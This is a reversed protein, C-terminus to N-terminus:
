RHDKGTNVFQICQGQNKFGFVQWGGGKCSTKDTPDIAIATISIGDLEIQGPGTFTQPASQRFVIRLDRGAFESLDASLSQWGTDGTPNEAQTGTSFSHVTTLLEQADADWVEVMHVRPETATDGLNFNWQIREMWSLAASHGAPVSVVQELTYETPASGDFGNWAVYDGDQPETLAMGFGGGQGAGSVVWTRFPTGTVTATWGSFDGTEFSGNEILEGSAPAARALLASFSLTLVSVMTFVSMLLATRRTGLLASTSIV